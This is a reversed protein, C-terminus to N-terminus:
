HTTFHDGYSKVLEEYAPNGQLIIIARREPWTLGNGLCREPELNPCVFSLHVLSGCVRCGLWYGCLLCVHYGLANRHVQPLLCGCVLDPHAPTIVTAHPSAPTDM